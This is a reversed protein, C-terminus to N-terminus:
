HLLATRVKTEPALYNRLGRYRAENRVQMDVMFTFVDLLNARETEVPPHLAGLLWHIAEITSYCDPRPQKRVLFGSPAPPTFRISPLLALNQSLRRVRKAQGWTADIVFIVLQKDKPFLAMRQHTSLSTIDTARAEPYLVVPYLQPDALIENVRDYHSFNTGELLLSNSLCLHAMRGTAVSRRAENRHILIVFQPAPSFPQIRLCYCSPRPRRCRHCAARPAKEELARREKKRLYEQLDM